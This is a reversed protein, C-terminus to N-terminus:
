LTEIENIILGTIESIINIDINKLKMKKVNDIDAERIEEKKVLQQQKLFYKLLKMLIELSSLGLGSNGNEVEDKLRDM